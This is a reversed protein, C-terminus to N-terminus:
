GVGRAAGEGGPLRADVGEPLGDAGGGSGEGGLAPAERVDELLRGDTRDEPEIGTAGTEARGAGPGIGMGSAGGGLAGGGVACGGADDEDIGTICDGSARGDPAGDGKPGAGADVGAGRTESDGRERGLAEGLL